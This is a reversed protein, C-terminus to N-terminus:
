VALTSRPDLALAHAARGTSPATKAGQPATQAPVLALAITLIVHRLGFNGQM